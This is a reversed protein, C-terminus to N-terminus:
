NIIEGDQRGEICRAKQNKGRAVSTNANVMEAAFECMEKNPFYQRHIYWNGQGTLFTIVVMTYIM